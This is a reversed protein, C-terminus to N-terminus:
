PMRDPSTDISEAITHARASLGDRICTSTAVVSLKLINAVGNKDIRKGLGIECGLDQELVQRGPLVHEIADAELVEERL